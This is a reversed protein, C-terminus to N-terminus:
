VLAEDVGRYMQIKPCCPWGTGNQICYSRNYVYISLTLSAVGDMITTSRTMELLDTRSSQNSYLIYMLCQYLWLPFDLLIKLLPVAISVLPCTSFYRDSLLVSREDPTCVSSLSSSASRRRLFYLVDLRAHFSFALNAALIASFICYHCPVLYFERGCFAPDM